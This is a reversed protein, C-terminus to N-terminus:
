RKNVVAVARLIARTAAAAEREESLFVVGDSLGTRVEAVYLRAPLVVASALAVTDDWRGLERAARTLHDPRNLFARMAGEWPDPLGAASRSLM